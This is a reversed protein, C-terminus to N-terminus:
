RDLSRDCPSSDVCQLRPSISEALLVPMVLPVKKDDGDRKPKLLYTRLAMAEAHEARSEREHGTAEALKAAKTASDRAQYAEQRASSALLQHQRASRLLQSALMDVSRTALNNIQGACATEPSRELRPSVVVVSPVVDRVETPSGDLMQLTTRSLVTTRYKPGLLALVPNDRLDLETLTSALPHDWLATIQNAQAILRCLSECRSLCHLATLKNASLDVTTLRPLNLECGADNLLNARVSLSTLSPCNALSTISTLLNGDLRLERLRPMSADIGQLSGDLRNEVLSLYELRAAQRQTAVIRTENRDAILRVLGEFGDLVDISKNESIDLHELEPFLSIGFTSANGAHFLNRSCDLWRLNPLAPLDDLGQLLNGSINLKIISIATGDDLQLARLRNDRASIEGTGAPIPPLVDLQQEDCNLM